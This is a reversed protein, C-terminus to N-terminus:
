ATSLLRVLLEKSSIFDWGSPGTPSVEAGTGAV